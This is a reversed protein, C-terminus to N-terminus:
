LASVPRTLAAQLVADEAPDFTRRLAGELDSLATWGTRQADLLNLQADREAAQAALDDVRDAEGAKLSRAAGAAARRAAPLDVSGMREAALQATALTSTATDVAALADAQVAELARGAAARGAEAQDIARRNLDWTPLALNVSLPLKTVGHDYNYGPSISIQPYQKAVEARLANEAIDYTAVARLVDGRYLAADGRWNPLSDVAPPPGMTEMAIASVASPSVGLGKALSVLALGHRGRADSLRREAAALDAQATLAIFRDDEGAAVRRELRALRERRLDVAGQALAMETDSSVLEIRAKELATRVMWVADVYDYWAQLAQLDATTIRAQRRAGVDIPIDVSASHGWTPAQNAYEGTMSLTFGSSLKATRAAAVTTLYNARAAAVQANSALATSLLDARTWGHGPPKADLRRAALEAPYREPAV